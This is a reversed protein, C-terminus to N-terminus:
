SNEFVMECPESSSHLSFFFNTIQEIIIDDEDEASITLTKLGKEEMISMLVARQQLALLNVTRLEKDTKGKHFSRMVGQGKDREIIRSSILEPTATLNIIARGHMINDFDSTSSRSLEILENTFHHSIGEDVIVSAGCCTVNLDYLLKLAKRQLVEIDAMQLAALSLLKARSPCLRRSKNFKEKEAHILSAKIMTRMLYSKGVGPPGVLDITLNPLLKSALRHVNFGTRNYLFNTLATKM